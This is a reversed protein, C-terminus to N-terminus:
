RIGKERLSGVHLLVKQAHNAHPDYMLALSAKSEAGALDGRSLDRDADEAYRAAQLEDARRIIRFVRYKANGWLWQFYRGRDPRYEFLRAAADAPPQLANACYRMQLEPREAAFEGL